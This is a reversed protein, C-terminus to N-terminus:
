RDAETQGDTHIPTYRVADMPQAPLLQWLSEVRKDIIARHASPPCPARLLLLKMLCKESEEEQQQKKNNDLELQASNHLLQMQLKKKKQKESQALHWSLHPLNLFNRKLSKLLMKVSDLLFAILTVLLFFLIEKKQVKKEIFRTLRYNTHM